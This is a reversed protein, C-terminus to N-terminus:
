PSREIRNCGVGITNSGHPWGQNKGRVTFGDTPNHLSMTGAVRANKTRHSMTAVGLIAIQIQEDIGCRFRGKQVDARDPM